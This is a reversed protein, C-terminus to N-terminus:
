GNPRLAAAARRLAEDLRDLREGAGQALNGKGGGRGEVDALATRLLAPIDHGLGDAQAFVLHAKDSRSGLLAVCPSLRVLHLALSRLEAVPWGDYAAVVTTPSAARSSTAEALLRRAEGELARETLDRVRKDSEALRDVTRSAAEPLAEIPASFTGSLGDLVTNRKRCADLARHGCVFRVRSGGKYRERGLVLVVGVESTSRPHTGGCPQRDFGEAEVIRVSDGTGEPPEVGLARAENASVTKVSVPRCEWVVENARTEAARVAAEGVDRDLDITSVTAGLHFSVTRAGAVEVLARSLLHQGHHQQRHDRRRDADVSGHVRTSGIPRELVHLIDEGEEIVAVVPVADLTGADSPQGGSEAYFATRDLVVAPRGEHERRALVAADFELLYPDDRFLRETL